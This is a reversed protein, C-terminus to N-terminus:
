ASHRASSNRFATQGSLLPERHSSLYIDAEQAACVFVAQAYRATCEGQLAKRCVWSAFDRSFRHRTPWEDSLFEAAEAITSIVRDRGKRVLLVRVPKDFCIEPGSM